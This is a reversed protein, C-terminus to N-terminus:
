NKVIDDLHRYALTLRELGEKMEKMKADSINFKEKMIDVLEKEAEEFVEDILAIAYLEFFVKNKETDSSGDFAMLEKEFDVKHASNLDVTLESSYSKFIKQEQEAIKDDVHMMTYALNLFAEQKEKSLGSVFM